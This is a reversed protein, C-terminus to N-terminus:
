CCTLIQEQDICDNRQEKGEALVMLVVSQHIFGHIPQFLEFRFAIVHHLHPFLHTDCCFVGCVRLGQELQFPLVAVAVVAQATTEARAIQLLTFM